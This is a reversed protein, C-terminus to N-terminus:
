IVVIDRCALNEFFRLSSLEKRGKLQTHRVLYLLVDKRVCKFSIITLRHGIRLTSKSIKPKVQFDLITSLYSLM